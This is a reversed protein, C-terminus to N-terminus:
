ERTTVKSALALRDPRRGRERALDRALVQLPVIAVAAALARPLSDLDLGVAETGVPAADRAGVVLVSTGSSELEMALRLDLEMTVPETALVAVALDSGALELPGHRFQAAELSEAPLRAAEKLLLAAMEAGARATGRGVVAVTSRDGLWRRVGSPETADLLTAVAAAARDAEAEVRTATREPIEGSLVGAAASLVALAAGFTKTSPGHEDGAGTDFSIDAARAVSNELGNTISVVLPRGRPWESERLLRVVEASEGSQSVAVLVTDAHLIPRRFHLLEAGDVMLAPIGAEGLVTVPTYCTHYSGGMGTFVIPPRARAAAALSQLGSMRDRLRAAARRIAAPQERLEADFRDAFTRSSTM